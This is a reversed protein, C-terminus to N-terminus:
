HGKQRQYFGAHRFEKARQNLVSAQPGDFPGATFCLDNLWDDWFLQEPTKVPEPEVVPEVPIRDAYRRYDVPAYLSHLLAM